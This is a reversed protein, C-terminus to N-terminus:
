DNMLCYVIYCHDFDYVRIAFLVCWIELASSHPVVMSEYTNPERSHDIMFDFFLLYLRLKLEIIFRFLCFLVFKSFAHVTHTLDIPESDVQQIPWQDYLEFDMTKISKLLKLGDNYENTIMSERDSCESATSIATTERM